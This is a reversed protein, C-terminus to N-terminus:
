HSIHLNMACKPLKAVKRPGYSSRCANHSFSPKKSRNLIRQLVIGEIKPLIWRVSRSFFANKYM